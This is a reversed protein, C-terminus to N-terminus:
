HLSNGTTPPILILSNVKHFQFVNTPNDSFSATVINLDQSHNLTLSIDQRSVLKMEKFQKVVASGLAGDVGAVLITDRESSSGNSQFKHIGSNRLM